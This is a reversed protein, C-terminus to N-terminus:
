SRPTVGQPRFMGSRQHTLMEAGAAGLQPAVLEGRGAVAREAGAYLDGRVCCLPTSLGFATVEFACSVATQKPMRAAGPRGTGESVAASYAALCTPAPATHLPCFFGRSFSGEGGRVAIQPQLNQMAM